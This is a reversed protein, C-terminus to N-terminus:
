EALKLASQLVQKRRPLLDASQLAEQILYWRVFSLESQDFTLKLTKIQEDLKLTAVYYQVSLKTESKYEKLTETIPVFLLSSVQIGSEEFLERAATEQPTEFKQTAVLKQPKGKPFGLHGVLTQVLLVQTTDNSFIVIGACSLGQPVNNLKYKDINRSM